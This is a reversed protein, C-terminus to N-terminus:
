AVIMSPEASISVTGEAGVCREQLLAQKITGMEMPVEETRRIQNWVETGKGVTCGSANLPRHWAEEEIDDLPTVTFRNSM